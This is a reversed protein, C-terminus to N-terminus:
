RVAHQEGRPHGRRSVREERPRAAADDGGFRDLRDEWVPRIDHYLRWAGNEIWACGWGHGQYERSDRSLSAFAALHPEMEFPRESHVCLLRCM